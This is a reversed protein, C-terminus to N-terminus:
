DNRAGGIVFGFTSVALEFLVRRLLMEDDFSVGDGEGYEGCVEIVYSRLDDLVQIFDRSTIYVDMVVSELWKCDELVVNRRSM